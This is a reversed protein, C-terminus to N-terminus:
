MTKSCSPSCSGSFEKVSKPNESIIWIIEIRSGKINNVLQVVELYDSEIILSTLETAGAVNLGWKVAEAEAFSVNGRLHAQNVGDAIAKGNSDRIVAGLGTRGDQM